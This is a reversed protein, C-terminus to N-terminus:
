LCHGRRVAVVVQVYALPVAYQRWWLTERAGVRGVMYMTPCGVSHSVCCAVSTRSRRGVSRETVGQLACEARVTRGIGAGAIFGSSIGAFLHM